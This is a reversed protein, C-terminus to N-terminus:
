VLSTSPLFPYFKVLPATKDVANGFGQVSDEEWDWVGFWFGWKGIAIEQAAAVVEFSAYGGWTWKEGEGEEM